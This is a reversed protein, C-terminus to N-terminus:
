LAVRLVDTMTFDEGKFLLPEARSVALAYSFCDGLNLGARDRGRGYRRWASRAREAQRADVAVVAVGGRHLLLDLERGGASGQRAEVVISAEVLTVASLVPSASAAIARAFREAEPEGFLVAVLASTDVVM